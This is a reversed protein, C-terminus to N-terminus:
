IRTELNFNRLAGSFRPPMMNAVLEVTTTVFGESKIQPKLADFAEGMMLAEEETFLQKAIKFIRVEEDQIHAFVAKKLKQANEKWAADVRDRVQLTRLLTEAEIHEKYSDYVVEAASNLSRLTNYLVAEEARAHPVLEDRIQEILRHKEEGEDENLVVLRNLLSKINNHDKKLSEYIQM